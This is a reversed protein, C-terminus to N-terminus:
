NAPLTLGCGLVNNCLTSPIGSCSTYTPTGTCTTTTSTEWFCNLDANCSAQSTLGPCEETPTGTCEM